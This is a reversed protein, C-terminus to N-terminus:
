NPIIRLIYLFPRALRARRQKGSVTKRQNKKLMGKPLDKNGSVSRGERWTQVEAEGVERGMNM